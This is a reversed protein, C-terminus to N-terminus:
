SDGYPLEAHVTWGQTHLHDGTALTGGLMSVRERMGVLGHGGGSEEPVGRAGDDRVTVGLTRAGYRIQVRVDAGPAYRSANSLSEQVIRYASLDVGAPLPRPLGIVTTEVTLGADRARDTLEALRDLGPQPVREATESDERLLGVIRRTETLAERAADRVVGFTELAAPPLESIKYPAAEAQLAIVSMHHAVVDHLERAIRAREELVAQRALDQRRLEAQEALSAEAAFRGSLADGAVLMVIIVGILILGFWLQMRDILLASGIPGAVTVLGVGVSVRRPYSTGVAFLVVTMALFSTTPWPWFEHAPDVVLTAAFMGAAMIRWAVLPWRPTILLPICQTLGLLWAQSIGSTMLNIYVIISGASFGIALVTSALFTWLRVRASEPWLLVRTPEKRTSAVDRVAYALYEATTTERDQIM